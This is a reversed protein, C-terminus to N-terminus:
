EVKDFEYPGVNFGGVTGDDNWEATAQMGDQLGFFSDKSEPVFEFVMGAPAEPASVTVILRGEKVEVALEGMAGRYLGELAAWVEDPLKAMTKTIHTPSSWGYEKAVALMLEAALQGGNDGNTMVVAGQGGDFFATMDCRFGENAGGHGFRKGDETIAPGLGWNGMGPTLMEHVLDASLVPHKGTAMGVQGAILYRALDSPTTWLGAAGKEPYTHFRGEVAAGTPRYGTAAVDHLEEPLPQQYTSHNMGLPGLVTAAMVEDFPKGTVDEVLLQAITTGGGSYRWITGPQTDVRVPDTNGEGDLVGVTSPVEKDPGYGPFGHVTLGATHTLLHRLTVPTKATFENDPVKWSVLKDNVPADLDLVGQDVLALSALAAVPKSISAAQFLMDPTVPRQTELDAFGFGRAWEIEGNSIVAISVGPVVLQRMREEIAAPAPEEGEIIVIPLLASTVNAIREEVPVTAPGESPAQGCALTIVSLLCVLVLSRKM